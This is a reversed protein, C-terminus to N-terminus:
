NGLSNLIEFFFLNLFISIIYKYVCILFIFIKYELYIYIYKLFLSTNLYLSCVINWSTQQKFIQHNNMTSSDSYYKIKEKYKVAISQKTIIFIFSKIFVPIIKRFFLSYWTCFDVMWLTLLFWTIDPFTGLLFYTLDVHLFSYLKVSPCLLLYSYVFFM